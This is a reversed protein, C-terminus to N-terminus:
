FPIEEDPLNFIKRLSIKRDMSTFLKSIDWDSRDYTRMM